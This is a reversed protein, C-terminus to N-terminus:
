GLDLCKVHINAHSLFKGIVLSDFLTIDEPFNLRVNELSESRGLAKYIFTQITHRM